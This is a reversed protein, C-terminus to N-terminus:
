VRASVYEELNDMLGQTLGLRETLLSELRTLSNDVDAGADKDLLCGLGSRMESMM